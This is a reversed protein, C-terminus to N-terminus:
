KTYDSVLKVVYERDIFGAYKKVIASVALELNAETKLLHKNVEKSILNDLAHKNFLFSKLLSLNAAEKELLDHRAGSYCFRITEETKKSIQCLVTIADDDKIPARTLYKDNHSIVFNQFEARVLNLIDKKPDKNKIADLWAKDVESKIINM